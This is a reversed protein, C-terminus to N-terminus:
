GVTQLQKRSRYRSATEISLHPYSGELRSHFLHDCIAPYAQGASHFSADLLPILFLDAKEPEHTLREPHQRLLRYLLVSTAAWVSTDFYDTLRGAADKLRRGFVRDRL